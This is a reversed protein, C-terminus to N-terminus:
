RLCISPRTRRTPVDGLLCLMSLGLKTCPHESPMLFSILAAMSISSDSFGYKRPTRPLPNYQDLTLSSKILMSPLRTSGDRHGVNKRVRLAGSVTHGSKNRAHLGASVNSCARCRLLLSLRLYRFSFGSM